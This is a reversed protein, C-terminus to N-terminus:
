RGTAHAHVARAIETVLKHAKPEDVLGRTMVVLVYPRRGEPRVIAADHYAARISGTKHAVPTGPPLGAPIGENFKQGLLVAVMADSAEPSVVKRDAILRLLRAHGRATATNNMGRAFALNDEVGSLVKLGPAGLEVMFETTARASVRDILLNTALNSSETIMLRVLERITEREGQRKYLTFESDDKPDLKYVSGDAISVFDDKIVIRDDLSLMKRDAQRFVEAMVALKMTSAAHFVEDPGLFLEEGSALDVYAVAVKEAGSAKILGEVTAALADDPRAPAQDPPNLICLLLAIPRLM